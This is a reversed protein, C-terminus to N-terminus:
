LNRQICQELWARTRALLTKVGNPLMGLAQAIAERGEGRGYAREVALAARGRLQQVCARAAAVLAEGDDAVEREWLQLALAAVAAEERREGRRHDLWLFRATRRLFAALAKAPLAQKGKQWAVVFAEQTLDEAVDQAAGLCRLFRFVGAVHRQVVDAAAPDVERRVSPPGAPGDPEAVIREDVAPM